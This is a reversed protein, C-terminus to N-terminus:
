VEPLGQEIAGVPVLVGVIAYLQAPSNTITGWANGEVELSTGPNTLLVAELTDLQGLIVQSASTRYTYGFVGTPRTTAFEMLFRDAIELWTEDYTPVGDIYLRIRGAGTLATDIRVGTSDRIELGLTCIYGGSRPLTVRNTGGTPVGQNGQLVTWQVSSGLGPPEVPLQPDVDYFPEDVTLALTPPTTLTGSLVTAAANFNFNVTPLVSGNGISFICYGKTLELPLACRFTFAGTAAVVTSYSPLQSPDATGSIGLGYQGSLKDVLYVMEYGPGNIIPTAWPDKFSVFSFVNYPADATFAATTTTGGSAAVTIELRRLYGPAAPLPQTVIGGFAAGSVSFGPRAAPRAHRLFPGGSPQATTTPQPRGVAGISANGGYTGVPM